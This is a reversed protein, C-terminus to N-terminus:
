TEQGKGGEIGAIGEIFKKIPKTLLSRRKRRNKGGDNRSEYTERKGERRIEERGRRKEGEERRMEERGKRM